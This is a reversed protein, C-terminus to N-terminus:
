LWRRVAKKYADFEASFHRSLYAEEPLIVALHIIGGAILTTAIMLINSTAFGLGIGILVMALYIPNRSFRYPGSRILSFSPTDPKLTEGTELFLRIASVLVVLGFLTLGVGLGENVVRPMPLFSGWFVRGLFGLLIAGIVLSPPHLRVSPRDKEKDGRPSM